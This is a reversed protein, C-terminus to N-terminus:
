NPNTHRVIKKLMASVVLRHFPKILFFYIKGLANNYHVTTSLSIEKLHDQNQVMVSVCGDLHSDYFGLMVEHDSCDVVEFFDFRIGKSINIKSRESSNGYEARGTKLGFPTVLINRILMLIDIWRPQRYLFSEMCDNLSVPRDAHFRITYCDTYDVVPFSKEIFSNEPLSTRHVQM